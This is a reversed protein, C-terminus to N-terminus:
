PNGRRSTAARRLQRAPSPSDPESIERLGFTPPALACLAICDVSPSHTSAQMPAPSDHTTALGGTPPIYAPIM